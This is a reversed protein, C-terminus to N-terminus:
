RTTQWQIAMGDDAGDRNGHQRRRQERTDDGAGKDRQGGGVWKEIQNNHTSQCQNDDHDGDGDNNSTLRCSLSTMPDIVHDGGEFICSSPHSM